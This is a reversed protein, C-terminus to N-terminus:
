ASQQKVLVLNQLEISRALLLPEGEDREAGVPLVLTDLDLDRYALALRVGVLALVQLLPNLVALRLALHRTEVFAARLLATTRSAATSRWNTSRSSGARAPGCRASRSKM